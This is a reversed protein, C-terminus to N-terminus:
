PKVGLASYIFQVEKAQNIADLLAVHPNEMKPVEIARMRAMDRLTRLCRTHNYKWPREYGLKFYANELIAIDFSPASAWLLAEPGVQTRFMESFISLAEEIAQPSKFLNVRAQGTQGMWWEITDGDMTLGSGIASDIKINVQGQDGMRDSFPDFVCWGLSPFVSTPARGLTELDIMVHSFDTM